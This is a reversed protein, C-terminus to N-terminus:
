RAEYIEVHCHMDSGPDDRFPMDIDKAMEAVPVGTLLPLGECQLTLKLKGASSSGCGTLAVVCVACLVFSCALAAVAKM